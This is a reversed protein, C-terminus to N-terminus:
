SKVFFGECNELKLIWIDKMSENTRFCLTFFTFNQIFTKLFDQKYVTM